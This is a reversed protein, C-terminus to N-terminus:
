VQADTKVLWRVLRHGFSDHIATAVLPNAENDQNKIVPDEDCDPGGARGLAIPGSENWDFRALLRGTWTRILLVAARCCDNNGTKV